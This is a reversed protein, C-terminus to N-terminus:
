IKKDEGTHHYRSSLRSKAARELKNDMQIMDIQDQVNTQQVQPKYSSAFDEELRFISESWPVCLRKVHWAMPLPIESWYRIEQGLGSPRADCSKSGDSADPLWLTCDSLNDIWYGSVIRIPRLFM